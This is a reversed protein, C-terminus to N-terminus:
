GWILLTYTCFAFGVGLDVITQDVLVGLIFIPYRSGSDGMAAGSTSECPPAFGAGEVMLTGGDSGTSALNPNTETAAVGQRPLRWGGGAIVGGGGIAPTLTQNAQSHPVPPLVPPSIFRPQGSRPTGKVWPFSPCYRGIRFYAAQCDAWTRWLRLDPCPHSTHLITIAFKWYCSYYHYEELSPFNYHCSNLFGM